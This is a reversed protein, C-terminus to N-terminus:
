QQEGRETRGCSAKAPKGKKVVNFHVDPEQNCKRDEDRGFQENMRPYARNYAPEYLTM